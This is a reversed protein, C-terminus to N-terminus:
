VSGHGVVGGNEFWTIFDYKDSGIRLYMVEAIREDYRKSIACSICLPTMEVAERKHKECFSYMFEHGRLCGAAVIWVSPELCRVCCSTVLDIM